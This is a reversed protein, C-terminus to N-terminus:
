TTFFVYLAGFFMKYFYYITDIFMGIIAAPNYYFFLDNIIIIPSLFLMLILMVPASILSLILGIFQIFGSDNFILDQIFFTISNLVSRIISNKNSDTAFTSFHSEDVWGKIDNVHKQQNKLTAMQTSELENSLFLQEVTNSLNNDIRLLLNTELKNNIDFIIKITKWEEYKNESVMLKEMFSTEDNEILVDKITIKCNKDNYISKLEDIHKKNTYTDINHQAIVASAFIAFAGLKGNIMSAEYPMVEQRERYQYEEQTTPYITYKCIGDLVPKFNVHENNLNTYLDKDIYDIGDAQFEKDGCGGLLLIIILGITIVFKNKTM